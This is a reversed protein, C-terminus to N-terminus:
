GLHVGARTLTADVVRVAEVVVIDALACTLPLSPYPYPYTLPLSLNPHLTAIVVDVM